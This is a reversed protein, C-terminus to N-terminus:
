FGELLKEKKINNRRGEFTILRHFGRHYLPSSIFGDFSGIELVKIDNRNKGAELEFSRLKELAL